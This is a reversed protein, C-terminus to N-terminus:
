ITPPPGPPPLLIRGQQPRHYATKVLASVAIGAMTTFTAEPQGYAETDGTYDKVVDRIPKQLSTIIPASRGSGLEAYYGDLSKLTQVAAETYSHGTRIEDWMYASRALSSAHLSLHGVRLLLQEDQARVRNGQEVLTSWKKQFHGWAIPLENKYIGDRRRSADGRSIREFESARFEEDKRLWFAVARQAQSQMDGVAM